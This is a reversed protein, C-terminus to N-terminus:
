VTTGEKKLSLDHISIIPKVSRWLDSFGTFANALQMLRAAIDAAEEDTATIIIKFERERRAPQPPPDAPPPAPPLPPEVTPPAPPPVIIPIPKTPTLGGSNILAQLTDFFVQDDEVDFSEWGGSNGYCFACTGILKGSGVLSSYTHKYTAALARMYYDGSWNRSKYGNRTDASVDNDVGLETIIIKPPPINLTQCRALMFLLRGVRYPEGPLYEHLGIYHQDRYKSLAILIPDFTADWESTLGLDPLGTGFNPLTLSIGRKAAEDMTECCWRVLRDKHEVDPVKGNPENLSYLTMNGRGLDGWKNLFDTPSAVWYRPDGVPKTHYGGDMKHKVRAVILTKPLSAALAKIYVTQDEKGGPNDDVMVTLVAPNLDNMRRLFKGYDKMYRLHVNFGFPNM